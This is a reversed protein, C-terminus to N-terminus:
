ADIIKDMALSTEYLLTEPFHKYAFLEATFWGNYGIKRFSERVRPWDVDGELLNCFGEINGVSAKWDKLHVRYIRDGLIEIWHDPWGYALINGVDFYCKVSSSGIEDVFRAMDLPSVLFKNWVNEVALVVDREEAISAMEKLVKKANQFAQDYRAVNEWLGGPVMLIADTDFIECLDLLKELREVALDITKESADAAINPFINVPLFSAVELGTEAIKQALEEMKDLPKDLSIPGKDLEVNLEIGAFGANKGEQCGLVLDYGDPLIWQNFAKKM